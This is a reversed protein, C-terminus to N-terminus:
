IVETAKRNAYNEYNSIENLSEVVSMCVGTETEELDDIRV